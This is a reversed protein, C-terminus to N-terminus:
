APIAVQDFPTSPLTRAETLFRFFQRIGIVTRRVSNDREECDQRLYDQYAILTGPEVQTAPMRNRELYDLFRQADRCYSEVTAPQKGRSRLSEAFRTVTQSDVIM